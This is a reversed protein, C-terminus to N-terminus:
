KTKGAKEIKQALAFEALGLIYEADSSTARGGCGDALPIWFERSIEKWDYWVWPFRSFRPVREMRPLIRIDVHLEKGEIEEWVFCTDSVRGRLDALMDERSTGLDTMDIM